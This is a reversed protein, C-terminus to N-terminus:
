FINRGCNDISIFGLAKFIFGSFFNAIIPVITMIVHTCAFRFTRESETTVLTLYSYIGTLVMAGGGGLHSILQHLIGTIELPIERMFIACVILASFFM